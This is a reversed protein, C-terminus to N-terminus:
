QSSSGTGALPDADTPPNVVKPGSSTSGAANPAASGTLLAVQAAWGSMAANVSVSRPWTAASTDASCLETALEASDLPACSVPTWSM